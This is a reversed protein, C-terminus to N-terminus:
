DVPRAAAGAPNYIVPRAANASTAPAKMLKVVADCLSGVVPSSPVIGLSECCTTIAGKLQLYSFTGGPVAPVMTSKAAPGAASAMPAAAKAAGPNYVVPPHAAGKVAPGSTPRYVVPAAAAYKKDMYKYEM